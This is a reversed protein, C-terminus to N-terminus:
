IIKKENINLQKFEWKTEENEIELDNFKIKKTRRM